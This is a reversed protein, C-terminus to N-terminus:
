FALMAGDSTSSPPRAPPCGIERSKDKTLTKEMANFYPSHPPPPPPPPPLPSPPYRFLVPIVNPGTMIKQLLTGGSQDNFGTANVVHHVHRLHRPPGLEGGRGSGCQEGPSGRCSRVGHSATSSTHTRAPLLCGRGGKRARKREKKGTTTTTTLRRSYRTYTVIIHQQQEPPAEVPVTPPPPPPPPPPLLLSRVGLLLGVVVAGGHNGGNLGNTGVKSAGSSDYM